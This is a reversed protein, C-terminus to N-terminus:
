DSQECQMLIIERKTPREMSTMDANFFKCVVGLTLLCYM